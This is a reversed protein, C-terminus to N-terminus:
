VANTMRHLCHPYVSASVQSSFASTRTRFGSVQFSVMVLKRVKVVSEGSPSPHSYNM